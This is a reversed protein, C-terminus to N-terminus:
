GNRHGKIPPRAAWEEIAEPLPGRPMYAWAIVRIGMCGDVQWMVRGFGGGDDDFITVTGKRPEQNEDDRNMVESGLWVLVRCTRGGPMHSDRVLRDDDPLKDTAYWEVEPQVPICCPSQGNERHGCDPNPLGAGCAACIAVTM